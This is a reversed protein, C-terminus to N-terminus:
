PNLQRLADLCKKASFDEVSGDTRLVWFCSSGSDHLSRDFRLGRVGAGIKADCEPHYDLLKRIVAFDDPRLEEGEKYTQRIVSIARRASRWDGLPSAASSSVSTAATAAEGEAALAPATWATAGTSRHWFYERDHEASYVAIWGDPLERTRLRGNKLKPEDALTERATAEDGAGAAKGAVVADNAIPPGGDPKAIPGRAPPRSVSGESLHGQGSTVGLLPPAEWTTAGTAPQWFYERGHAESYVATWGEPLQRRGAADSAAARTACFRGMVARRGALWLMGGVLGSAAAM